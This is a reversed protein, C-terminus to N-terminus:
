SLQTALEPFGQSAKADFCSYEYYNTANCAPFAPTPPPVCHADCAAQTTYTGSDGEVPQCTKGEDSCEYSVCGKKAQLCAPCNSKGGWNCCGDCVNCGTFTHGCQSTTKNVDCVPLIDCVAAADALLLLLLLSRCM